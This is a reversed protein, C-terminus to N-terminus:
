FDFSPIYSITEEWYFQIQLCSQLVYNIVYRSDKCINIFVTSYTHHFDQQITANSVENLLWQAVM